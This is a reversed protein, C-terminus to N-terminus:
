KKGESEAAAPAAAAVVVPEDSPPAAAAAGKAGKKSSSSRRKKSSAIEAQQLRMALQEDAELQKGPTQPVCLWGRLWVASPSWVVAECGRWLGAVVVVFRAAPGDCSLRSRASRVAHWRSMASPSSRPQPLRSSRATRKPLAAAVCCLLVLLLRLLAM